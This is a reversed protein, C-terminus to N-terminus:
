GSAVDSLFEADFDEIDRLTILEWDVSVDAEVVFSACNGPLICCVNMGVSVGCLKLGKSGSVVAVCEEFGTNYVGGGKVTRRLFCGRAMGEQMLSTLSHGGPDWEAMSPHYGLDCRRKCSHYVGQIADAFYSRRSLYDDRLVKHRWKKWARPPRSRVTLYPVPAHVRMSSYATLVLGRDCSVRRKNSIKAEVGPPIYVELFAGELEFLDEKGPSHVPVAAALGDPVKFACGSAPKLATRGTLHLVSPQEPYRDCGAHAIENVQGVVDPKKADAVLRCECRQEIAEVDPVWVASCSECVTDGLLPDVVICRVSKYEGALVAYQQVFPLHLMELLGISGKEQSDCAHWSQARKVIHPDAYSRLRSHSLWDVLVSFLMPYAGLRKELECHMDPPYWSYCCFGNEGERVSVGSDVDSVDCSTNTESDCEGRSDWFGAIDMSPHAVVERWKKDGLYLTGEESELDWLDSWKAGPYGPLAPLICDDVLVLGFTQLEDRKMAGSVRCFDLYRDLTPVPGLVAYADLEADPNLSDLYFSSDKDRLNMDRFATVPM